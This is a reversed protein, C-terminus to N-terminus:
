PEGASIQIVCSATNAKVYYTASPNCAVFSFRGATLKAFIASGDNATALEVYNTADTNKVALLDFSALSGLPIATWSTTATYPRVQWDTGSSTENLTPAMGGTLNTDTFSLGITSSKTFAM